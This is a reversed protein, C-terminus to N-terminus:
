LFRSDGGKPPYTETTFISVAAKIDPPHKNWEESCTYMQGYIDLIKCKFAILCLSLMKLNKM